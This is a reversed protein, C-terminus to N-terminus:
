RPEPVLEHNRFWLTRFVDLIAALPGRWGWSASIAEVPQSYLYGGGWKVILLPVMFVCVILVVCDFCRFTTGRVGCM